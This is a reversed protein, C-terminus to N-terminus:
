RVFVGVANSVNAATVPSRVLLQGGLSLSTSSGGDLNLAGVSGLQKLIQAFEDLSAGSGGVRNHVAVLLLNGQGDIAIASRSAKQQQFAKSFKESEANLVIRGQDILLPGAALSHPFQDFAEPLSRGTLTVTTGMALVNAAVLNGRDIILYGNIPIPMQVKGSKGLPYQGTVQDQQVVYATENDALPIYTSGWAPTYRALGRQVYGSNLYHITLRQNTSTSLTETLGLRGVKFQGQDNWAIAGRNLIPGSLWGQNVRIGGLPLQTNRNFFGGNIAAAVQQDRAMTLLPATGQAQRPNTMIPRISVSPSRPNVQLVTVPFQGGRGGLNIFKQLWIIGDSWQIKRTKPADPRADIVLRYPNALTSINLKYGTPLQFHIKSSTGATEVRYRISGTSGTGGLDDDDVPKLTPLPSNAISSSNNTSKMGGANITVVAETKAQSMQWFTPQSLEVVIRKGWDQRGDRVTLIQSATNPLVLKDGQIQPAGRLPDGLSRGLTQWLPSLDLYRYPAVFRTQFTWKNGNFWEAPQTQPADNDILDLGMIQMAGTDSFGTHIEGNEQWQGWPLNFTKGDITIQQGQQIFGMPTLPSTQSQVPTPTALSFVLRLGGLVMLTALFLRGFDWWRKGLNGM